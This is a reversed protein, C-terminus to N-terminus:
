SKFTLSRTRAARRQIIASTKCSTEFGKTKIRGRVELSCPGHPENLFM